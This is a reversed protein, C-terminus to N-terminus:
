FGPSFFLKINAQAFPCLISSASPPHGQPVYSVVDEIRCEQMHEQLESVCAREFMAQSRRPEKKKGQAEACSGAKVSREFVDRWRGIFTM